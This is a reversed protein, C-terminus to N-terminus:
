QTEQADDGSTALATVAARILHEPVGAVKAASQYMGRALFSKVSASRDMLAALFNLPAYSAVWGFGVPDRNSSVAVRRGVQELAEILDGERKNLAQISPIAKQLEEKLGRALAKEAEVAAASQQGYKKGIQRYTGVKLDQAEVASLPRSVRGMVPQATTTMQGQANLVGTPVHKTGVQATKTTAPNRLFQQTAERVANVDADPNVQQAFARRTPGTRAAVRVPAIQAPSQRVAARITDNTADVLGQLKLIGGRTVNVGEDLLTQVVKPVEAGKMMDKLAGIGPKLSSQMLRQGGAKLAPAVAGGVAQMGGQLAAQGAMGTAAETASTPATADGTLRDVLQNAAEGAAGGVAAGGVAGPLGGFGLGFATGGIGGIVGGVTAGAAPLWDSATSLWSKAPAATNPHKEAYLKSAAQEIDTDSMSSPFAVAGVGPIDIVKEPQPAQTQPM